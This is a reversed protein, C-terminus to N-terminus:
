WRLSVAVADARGMEWNPDWPKDVEHPAALLTTAYRGVGELHELYGPAGPYVVNDAAVVTGHGVLGLAEAALLDPLYCPKCHDLFLYDVPAGGAAAARATAGAAAAARGELPPAGAGGEGAAGGAAAAAAAEAQQEVAQAQLGALVGGGSGAAAAGSAGGGEGPRARQRAAAIIRAAEPLKESGLGELITVRAGVGAYDIIQRAVAANQPNAEICVLLGGQDLQRATRVASYGLFTGIELAVQPRLDSLVQDLMAGKEAGIAYMPYHTAWEDLASLVAAADGPAAKARVWPLIDSPQLM